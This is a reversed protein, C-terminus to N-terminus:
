AFLGPNSSHAVSTVTQLHRQRCLLMVNHVFQVISCQCTKRDGPPLTITDVSSVCHDASVLNRLLREADLSRSVM